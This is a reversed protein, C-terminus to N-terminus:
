IVERDFYVAAIEVQIRYKQETKLNKYDRMKLSM